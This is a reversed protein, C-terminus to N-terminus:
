RAHQYIIMAICMNINYIVSVIVKKTAWWRTATAM